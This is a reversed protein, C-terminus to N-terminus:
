KYITQLLRDGKAVPVIHDVHWVGGVAQQRQKCLQVAEQAVFRDFDTLPASKTRARYLLTNAVRSARTHEVTAKYYAARRAKTEAKALYVAITHARQAPSRLASASKIANSVTRNAQAWALSKQKNCSKCDTRRGDKADKRAFFASLPKIAGCKTCKKLSCVASEGQTRFPPRWLIM